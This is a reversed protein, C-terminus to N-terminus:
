SSFPDEDTGTVLLSKLRAVIAPDAPTRSIFSRVTRNLAAASIVGAGPVRMMWTSVAGSTNSPWVVLYPSGIRAGTGKLYRTLADTIYQQSKETHAVRTLGRRTQGAFTWYFGPKWVKTDLVLLRKGSVIIHDINARSGTVPVKLDHMVAAKTGFLDLIDQTKKEGRAGASAAGSSAAWSTNGSLGTAAKGYIGNM